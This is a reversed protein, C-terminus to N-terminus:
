EDGDGMIKLYEKRLKEKAREIRGSVTTRKEGLMDAIRKVSYGEIIRLVILNRADVDLRNLAEAIAEATASNVVTEFTDSLSPVDHCDEISSELQRPKVYRNYYNCAQHVVSKYIYSVQKSQPKNKISDFNRLVGIFADTVADEALQADRLFSYAVGCMYARNNVYLEEFVARDTEELAEAILLVLM